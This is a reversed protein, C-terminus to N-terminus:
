TRKMERGASDWDLSLVHSDAQVRLQRAPFRANVFPNSYRPYENLPIPRGDQRLQGKWGFELIGQSPSHYRVNLGRYAIKANSIREVFDEFDGESAKRGMECIYINERGPVIVERGCDEGPDAQWHYPRKSHLALYGEGLRIFIWGSREVVEDFKDRPLWAHTLILRNPQYLALGRSIKYICIVVNRVQAARPLSGSGTWYNPSAGLRKPPHTTFCVADPGLTAQWISQQDGGYGSRYDQATSLMYDPTRFTYANVEERTNRCLDREFLRAILKLTRTRRLFTLLSKFQKFPNFFINEWWDFADFMRMVLSITRPHAYAELTLYSMGDEFSEFGLGWREAEALRIGMRQVNTMEELAADGAITAIVPPLRYTPSLAFAVASMNDFGTFQGMGFLLKSTDVLGEQGVWKKSNEYSRGHTSGFVGKFSNLAVDLLLMDIVMTARQRIEDDVVFDALSLLATLDEDYYVNSLWESFGTRFRLDLWRLIRPRNLAIKETGTHGSNTFRQDPFRQGALYAASAFLIHHNETWTCLSDSGVEDPWYKFDLVTRRARELLGASLSPHDGFQLLMRLIAHMSFDACDKRRDIYDLTARIVGEHPTGGAAIRALEYYAGKTNTPAPNRLCHNLFARRRSEFDAAFPRDSYNDPVPDSPYDSPPSEEVVLQYDPTAHVTM